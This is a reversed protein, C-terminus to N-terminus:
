GNTQEYNGCILTVNNMNNKNTILNYKTWGPFITLISPSLHSSLGKDNSNPIVVELISQNENSVVYIFNYPNEQNLFLNEVSNEDNSKYVFCDKIKLNQTMGIILINKILKGVESGDKPSFDFLNNVGKSILTSDNELENKILELDVLPKWISKNHLNSKVTGLYYFDNLPPYQPSNSINDMNDEGSTNWLNEPLPTNSNPESETESNGWNLQSTSEPQSQQENDWSWATNNNQNEM